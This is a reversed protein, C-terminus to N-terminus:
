YKLVFARKKNINYFKVQYKESTQEWLDILAYRNTADVIILEPQLITLMREFNIKPSDHLIVIDPQYDINKYIGLSDVHFIKKGAFNQFVPLSDYYIQSYQLKMNKLLFSDIYAKKQYFHLEEGRGTAVVPTHYQYMVYFENRKAELHKQWIISIQFSLILLLVSVLAYYNRKNKLYAYLVFIAAVALILQLRNFSINQILAGPLEGIKHTFSLLTNILVSFIDFFLGVKLNFFSFFVLIFGVFLILFLLPIVVLNALWFYVPFQHFYYLSLPLIGLQAAISVSFLDMWWQLIMYKSRFIKRLHPLFSIIAWVAMFSMQFGVQLLYDPHYLLMLFAASFLINYTNTNRRLHFGLQLLSFMLVARVVSPSFGSIFAYFWLFVISILLFLWLSFKKLPYLILNLFVLLIGVHLGSIALIHMTGAAQFDRYVDKTIENREGLLVTYAFALERSTLGGSKLYNKIKQRIQATLKYLNEGTSDIQYPINKLNVERYINQTKLYERYDFAFPNMATRPKMFSASDTYLFVSDGVTIETTSLPIHLLIKGQVFHKDVRVVKAVLNQRKTTRLKKLVLTKIYVPSKGSLHHAFYAKQNRIDAQYELLMGTFFAVFILSISFFSEKRYLKNQRFHFFISLTLSILLLVTLLFSNCVLVKEAFIGASLFITILVLPYKSLFKM